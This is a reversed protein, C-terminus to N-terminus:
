DNPGTLSGPWIAQDSPCFGWVRDLLSGLEACEPTEDELLACGRELWLAELAEYAERQSLGVAKHRLVIADLPPSPPSCRLAELIDNRLTTM